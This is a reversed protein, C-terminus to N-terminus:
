PQAIRIFCVAYPMRCAVSDPHRTVLTSHRPCFCPAHLLSYPTLMCCFAYPMRTAGAVLSGHHRTVLTLPVASCLEPSWTDSLPRKRSPVRTNHNM